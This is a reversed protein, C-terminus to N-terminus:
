DPEDGARGDFGAQVAQGACIPLATEDLKQESIVPIWCGRTRAASSKVASAEPLRFSFAGRAASATRSTEQSLCLFSALYTIRGSVM